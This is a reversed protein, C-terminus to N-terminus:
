VHARGIERRATDNWKRNERREMAEVSDYADDDDYLSPTFPFPFRVKADRHDNQNSNNNMDNSETRKFMM